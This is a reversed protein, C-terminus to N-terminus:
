AERLRPDLLRYLLDVLLNAVVVLGAIGLIIAEVVPYDRNSISTLLIRSIGPIGFVQEVVISGAVMDALAMGLFTVVPLIANRLVHRYMVEMTANGRSYATRVYDKGAEEIVSDRLLKAAMAAKPLAIAVAPLILYRLFGVMDREYSIFGGPTFWRLVIGFIYTLLIGSFFPPIAMIVQCLALLVRDFIRGEHKAALIGLPIALAISLVFAMLSMTLTIPLKGALMSSVPMSYSYSTGLDGGLAHIVWRGYQVLLPDDLGMEARLQAAREPTIETGLLATVPDGPILRFALFVLLTVALLTLVAGALKRLIGRM